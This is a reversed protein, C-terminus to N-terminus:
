SDSAVRLYATHLWGLDERCQRILCRTGDDSVPIGEDSWHERARDLLHAPLAGRHNTVRWWAVGSGHQSMVAGVQRPGTGVLEAIDGYSVVKGSRVLAAADLVDATLAPVGMATIRAEDADDM